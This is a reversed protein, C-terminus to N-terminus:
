SKNKFTSKSNNEIAKFFNIIGSYIYVKYDDATEQINLWGSTLFDFGELRMVCNPKTYPIRSTDSAIGLADFARRNNSTKPINFSNTYSAQRDKLDAIDNIQLTQKINTKDYLDLKVNLAWMEVIM